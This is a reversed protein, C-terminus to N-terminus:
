HHVMSWLTMESHGVSHLTEPFKALGPYSVVDYYHGHNFKRGVWHSLAPFLNLEIEPFFLLTFNRINWKTSYFEYKSYMLVEDLVALFGLASYIQVM